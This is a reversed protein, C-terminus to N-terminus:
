TKKGMKNTKLVVIVIGSLMALGLACVIILGYATKEFIYQKDDYILYSALGTLIGIIMSCTILASGIRMVKRDKESLVGKLIDENKGDLRKIVKDIERARSFDALLFLSVKPMLSFECRDDKQESPFYHVTGKGSSLEYNQDNVKTITYGLRQLEDFLEDQIDHDTSYKSIM